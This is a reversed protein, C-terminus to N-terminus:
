RQRFYKSLSCPSDAMSVVFVRDGLRPEFEDISATTHAGVGDAEVQFVNGTGTIVLSGNAGCVDFSSVGWLAAEYYGMLSCSKRVCSAVSRSAWTLGLSRRLRENSQM